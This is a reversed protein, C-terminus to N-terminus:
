IEHWVISHQAVSHQATGYQVYLIHVRIVHVSKMATESLVRFEEEHVDDPRTSAPHTSQYAICLIICTHVKHCFAQMPGLCKIQVLSSDM